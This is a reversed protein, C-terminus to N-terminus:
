LISINEKSFLLEPSFYVFDESSFNSSKHLLAEDLVFKMERVDTAKAIEVAAASFAFKRQGYLIFPFHQKCKLV